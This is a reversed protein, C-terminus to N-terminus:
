PQNFISRALRLYLVALYIPVARRVLWALLAGLVLAHGPWGRLRGNAELTDILWRIFSLLNVTVNFGAWAIACAFFIGPFFLALIPFGGFGGSISAYVCGGILWLWVVSRCYREAYQHIESETVGAISM